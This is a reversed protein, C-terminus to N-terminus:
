YYYNVRIIFLSSSGWGWLCDISFYKLFIEHTELFDYVSDVLLTGDLRNFYDDLKTISSENIPQLENLESKIFGEYIIGRAIDINIFHESFQEPCKPNRLVGWTILQKKFLSANNFYIQFKNNFHAM